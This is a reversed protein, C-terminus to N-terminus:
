NLWGCKLTDRCPCQLVWSASPLNIFDSISSVLTHRHLGGLYVWVFLSRLCKDEDLDTCIKFFFIISHSLPIVVPLHYISLINSKLVWDVAFTMDPRALHYLHTFVKRFDKIDLRLDWIFLILDVDRTRRQLHRGYLRLRLHPPSMEKQCLTCFYESFHVTLINIRKKESFFFVGGAHHRSGGDGADCDADHSEERPWDNDNPKVLRLMEIRTEGANDVHYQYVRVDSTCVDPPLFHPLSICVPKQFTFNEGAFYEVVPSNITETGALRLKRHVAKLDTSIAGRITLGGSAVRESCVDGQQDEHDIVGTSAATDQPRGESSRTEPTSVDSVRRVESRVADGSPPPDGDIVDKIANEPISLIVDSDQGQLQGGNASFLGSFQWASSFAPAPPTSSTERLTTSTVHTETFDPVRASPTETGPIDSDSQDSGPDSAQGQLERGGSVSFLGSLQGALNFTPLPPSSLPRTETFDSVETEKALKMETNSSPQRSPSTDQVKGESPPPTSSTERLTTSNVRTETFDSESAQTRQTEMDLIDSHSHSSDTDSAQGQPEIAFLPGYAVSFTLPPNSLTETDLIDVDSDNGPDSVEIQLQSASLQWERSFPVRPTTSSTHIRTFDSDLIM